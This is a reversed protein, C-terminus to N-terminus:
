RLYYRWYYRVKFYKLYSPYEVKRDLTHTHSVGRASIKLAESIFIM